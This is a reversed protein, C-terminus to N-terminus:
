AAAKLEAMIARLEIVAQDLASRVDVLATSVEEHRDLRELTEAMEVKIMATAMLQLVRNHIRQALPDPALMSRM